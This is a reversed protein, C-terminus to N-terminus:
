EARLTLLVKSCGNGRATPKWRLILVTTKNPGFSDSDTLVRRLLDISRPEALEALTLAHVQKATGTFNTHIETRAIDSVIM